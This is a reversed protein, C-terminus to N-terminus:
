GYRCDPWFTELKQKFLSREYAFIFFFENRFGAPFHHFYTTRSCHTTEYYPPAALLPAVKQESDPKLKLVFALTPSQQFLPGFDGVKDVWLGAVESFLVFFGKSLIGLTKTL